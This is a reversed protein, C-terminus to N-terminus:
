KFCNQYSLGLTLSNWPGFAITRRYSMDQFEMAEYSGKKRNAGKQRKGQFELVWVISGFSLNSKTVTLTIPVTAWWLFSLSGLFVTICDWLLLFRKYRNWATEFWEPHVDLPAMPTLHDSIKHSIWFYENGPRGDLWFQTFDFFMLFNM